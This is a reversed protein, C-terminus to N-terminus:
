TAAVLAALAIAIQFVLGVLVRIRFSSVTVGRSGCIVFQSMGGVSAAM